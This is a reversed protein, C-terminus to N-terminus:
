LEKREGKSWNKTYITGTILVFATVSTWFVFSGGERLFCYPVIVNCIGLFLAFVVLCKEKRTLLIV